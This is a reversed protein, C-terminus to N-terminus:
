AKMKISKFFRNNNTQFCGQLLLWQCINWFDLKIQLYLLGPFYGTYYATLIWKLNRRRIQNINFSYYKEFGSRPKVFVIKRVGVKRNVKGTETKNLQSVNKLLFVHNVKSSEFAKVRQHRTTVFLWAQLLLCTHNKEIKDWIIPNYHKTIHWTM